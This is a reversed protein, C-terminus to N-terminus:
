NWLVRVQHQAIEDLVPIAIQADRGPSTCFTDYKEEIEEIYMPVYGQCEM